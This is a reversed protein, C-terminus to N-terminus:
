AGRREREREVLEEILRDLTVRARWDLGRAAKEPNGVSRDIDSPRHFSADSIVRDRWNLGVRAFVKEVFTELSVGVGTAIVFDDPEDRELVRRMADVYEPAWGWDRVIDLRGLTLKSARGEAIDLAGRVIKRSVYKDGRLHSEHNFFLVSCAFLGFNRRYSEVTWFAAAKSVAYPSKPHFPTAETAPIETEGFCEGSSANIFRADLKLRRMAEMITAPAAINDNLTELPREFSLGVSSQASLNYIADPRVEELLESVTSFDTPDASHLTVRDAVGLRRLGGLSATEANRSTGQVDWGLDLLLKSLWAGDQGSAGFILARGRGFMM